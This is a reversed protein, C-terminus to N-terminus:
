KKFILNVVQPYNSVFHLRLGRTIEVPLEEVDRINQEPLILENIKNRKAALLKERIGGVPLVNGTLSLEGTMAIHRKSCEKRALSLLSTAMTIGASPGDKPTAGDPVHVHISANDFYNAPVGLHNANATVYSYAIHASEKMVDGLQGTLQFANKNSHVLSAEVNLTTGGMSTWALGTIVGVANEPQDDRFFPQGLLDPLDEDTIRIPENEGKLIRMVSKRIVRSLHKELNRVGSERAYGNILQRIAKDSISLQRAKLGAEKRLRPWLHKKAILMKESTMYGALRIEEMRDLLPPSITDNQNATVIFLIRSLDFRVDLYHDLFSNNQEPDLAELLASAPDGQFSSGIKDIEDLMIVPNSVGTEKLAQIFKGPMAGIYTRRHGKIEAEDRMGGLSLRYFKRGLASAIARGVSTKGVGPPGVLLLISGSVEGRYLGVALFELIRQKVDELGAHDKDLMQRAHELDLQDNSYKGWPLITMWDLYNRTVAYEPSGSELVSLKELEEDIRKAPEDPLSLLEIRKRFRESEATRDDKSIGLEKQIEKLQEHLFFKRQQDTITEEVKERLRAQIKALELEKHLLVLVKEMRRLLPVTELVDQLEDRSASTIAAAFDTLPEPESPRFRELYTHLEESYLPNLPLLDKITNIVAMAYAKIEKNNKYKTKPYEVRVLFPPETTLWEVIRFRCVGEAIFQLRDDESILNHLKVATGVTAFDTSGPLESEQNTTIILGAMHHKNDAICKLSERWYDENMVIPMIQAPFFPRHSLPLLYLETPKHEIANSTASGTDPEARYEADIITDKQIMFIDDPKNAAYKVSKLM